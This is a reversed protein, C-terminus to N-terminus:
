DQGDTAEDPEPNAEGAPRYLRERFRRAADRQMGPLVHQYADQTYATTSHGLRETVVKTIEGSKLVLTAHTHRLDHLRIRPLGARDTVAHFERTITPPHIRRGTPTTFVLDLDPWAAGVALREELQRKRHLRLVEVDFEDIEVARRSSSSKPLEKDHVSGSHEVAARVVSIMRADLDVHMWRLAAMESRRMGTSAFLHWM